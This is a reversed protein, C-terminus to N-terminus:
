LSYGESNDTTLKASCPACRLNIDLPKRQVKGCFECAHSEFALVAPARQWGHGAPDDQTCDHRMAEWMIRDLTDSNWDADEHLIRMVACGFAALKPQHILASETAYRIGAKHAWFEATRSDRGKTCPEGDFGRWFEVAATTSTRRYGAPTVPPNRLLHDHLTRSM